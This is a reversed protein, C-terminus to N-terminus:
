MTMITEPTWCDGIIVRFLTIQLVRVLIVIGTTSVIIYCYAYWSQLIMGYLLSIGSRWVIM